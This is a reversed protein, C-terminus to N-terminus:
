ETFEYLKELVKVMAYTDLGCYKLLNKRIQEQEEPTHNPMDPYASMADGGNQIGELNHYDLEPDDPFLAPLVAKISFRGHLAESYYYKLQFPTMLDRINDHINMLHEELDPYLNALSQIVKKEFTMNYALTCVNKPIDRCLQEALLRKVDTGPAGLFEKHELEGGKESQIHLSYQFPIQMYPRDGDNEPIATQYTEFDLYYLPYTYQEICEKIGDKDIYPPTHNLEAEVQRMQNASLHINNRVVDEFSVIGNNILEFRKRRGLGNINLVSQEPILRSCYEYFFCCYPEICHMGIEREPEVDDAIAMYRRIGDVNGKVTKLRELVKETCDALTFLQHIDLEGSRVYQNNIYMNYVGTVTIGCKTLVYLQFAMDDIYNDATGTASKVEVIDWGYPNRRLIDVSCFLGDYAFSAEAINKVNSNMYEQTEKLMSQLGKDYDVLAYEGFFKRALDGVKNGMDFTAQTSEQVLKEEPKYEELWLMKPCRIGRTYKSKSLNM